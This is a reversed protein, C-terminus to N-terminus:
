LNNADNQIPCILWWYCLPEFSFDLFYKWNRYKIPEFRFSVLGLIIRDPPPELSGFQMLIQGPFPTTKSSKMEHQAFSLMSESFFTAIFIVDIEVQHM